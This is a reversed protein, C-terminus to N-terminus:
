TVKAWALRHCRCWSGPGHYRMTHGTLLEPPQGAEVFVLWRGNPLVAVPGHEGLMELLQGALPQRV